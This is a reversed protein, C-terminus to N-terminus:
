TCAFCCIRSFVTRWVSSGSYLKNIQVVFTCFHWQLVDDQVGTYLQVFKLNILSFHWDLCVLNIIREVMMIVSYVNWRAWVKLSKKTSDFKFIPVFFKYKQNFYHTTNVKMCGNLPALPFLNSANLPANKNVITSM